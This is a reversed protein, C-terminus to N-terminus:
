EEQNTYSFGYRKSDMKLNQELESPILMGKRGMESTTSLARNDYYRVGYVYVPNSAGTSTVSVDGGSNILNGLVDNVNCSLSGVQQNNVFVELKDSHGILTLAVIQERMDVDPSTIAGCQNDNVFFTLQPKNGTTQKIDLRCLPSHQQDNAKDDLKISFNASDQAKVLLTLTFDHYLGTKNVINLNPFSVGNKSALNDDMNSVNVANQNNRIMDTWVNNNYDDQGRRGEAGTKLNNIGDYFATLGPVYYKNPGQKVRSICFFADNCSNNPATCGLTEMIIQPVRQACKGKDGLTVIQGNDVCWYGKADTASETKRCLQDESDWYQGCTLVGCNYSGSTRRTLSNRWSGYRRQRNSQIKPWWSPRGMNYTVVYAKKFYESDCNALTEDDQLCFVNTLYRYSGDDDKTQDMTIASTGQRDSVDLLMAQPVFSLFKHDDQSLNIYQGSQNKFDFGLWQTMYDKAAQHQALFSVIFGEAKYADLQVQDDRPSLAYFLIGALFTLVYVLYLM